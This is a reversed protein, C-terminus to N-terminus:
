VSEESVTIKMRARKTAGGLNMEYLIDIIGGCKDIACKMRKTTVNMDFKYPPIEYISSYSKGEEFVLVSRLAGRRSVTVRGGRILIDCFMKGGEGCEEYSLGIEDKATKMIASYSSDNIEGEGEGNDIHSHITLNIKKTESM